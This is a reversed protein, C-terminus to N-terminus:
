GQVATPNAPTGFYAWDGPASSLFIPRVRFYLKLGTLQKQWTTTALEEEIANQFNAAASWQLRYRVGAPAQNATIIATFIGNSATVSLAIPFSPAPPNGKAGFQGQTRVAQLQSALDDLAGRVYEDKIRERYDYGAGKQSIAM